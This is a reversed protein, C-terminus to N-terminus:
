SRIMISVADLSDSSKQSGLLPDEQDSLLDMQFRRGCTPRSKTVAEYWNQYWFNAGAAEAPTNGRLAEQPSFYNYHVLWGDLILQINRWRRLGRIIKNRANTFRCWEHFWNVGPERGPISAPILRNGQVGALRTGDGFWKGNTLIELPVKGARRSSQDILAKVDHQNRNLCLKTALLFRTQSDLIDIVSVNIDKIESQTVTEGAIWTDSVDITTKGAESNTRQSFYIIWNYVSTRTFYTDYEMQIEKPINSLRTGEFYLHIAAAVLNSPTKMDFLAANDAFKHRCDKCWWRQIGKFQGFKVINKSGCLKCFLSNLNLNKELSELM